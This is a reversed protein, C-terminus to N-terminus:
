PQGEGSLAAVKDAKINWQRRADIENDGNVGVFHEFPIMRYCGAAWPAPGCDRPWPEVEEIYPEGGCIPCKRVAPRLAVVSM